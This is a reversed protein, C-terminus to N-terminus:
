KSRRQDLPPYRDFMTSEGRLAKELRDLRQNQLEAVIRNGQNDLAKVFESRTIQQEKIQEAHEKSTQIISFVGLAALALVIVVFVVQPGSITASLGHGSLAIKNDEKHMLWPKAPDIVANSSPTMLAMDHGYAIDHGYDDLEQIRTKIWEVRDNM